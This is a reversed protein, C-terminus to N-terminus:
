AHNVLMSPMVRLTEAGVQILRRKANSEKILSEMVSSRSEPVDRSVSAFLSIGKSLWSGIQTITSTDGFSHEELRLEARKDLRGVRACQRSKTSLHVAVKWMEREKMLDDVQRQLEAVQPPCAPAPPAAREEAPSTPGCVESQRDALSRGSAQRTPEDRGVGFHSDGVTSRRCQRRQPQRPRIAPSVHLHHVRCLIFRTRNRSVGGRSPGEFGPGMGVCCRFFVLGQSAHFTTKGPCLLFFM